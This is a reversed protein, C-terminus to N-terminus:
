GLADPMEERLKKYSFVPGDTCVYKEGIGCHQCVGCGCKMRRELSVLVNEEPVDLALLSKVAPPYMPPPGCLVAVANAPNALKIESIRQNAFGVCGTWGPAPRDITTLVRMFSEWGPFEHSFLLDAPSRAGYVLFIEGFDKRNKRLYQIMARFPPIGCGGTVMILDKGRLNEIGFGNGFPGRVGAYDGKEMSFLKNTVSGVARVSVDFSKEGFSAFGVPIEGFGSVSLMLFQGPMWAKLPRDPALKLQVVDQSLKRSEIVRAPTPSLM